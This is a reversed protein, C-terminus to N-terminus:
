GASAVPSRDAAGYEWLAAEDSPEGGVAALLLPRTEGATLVGRAVGADTKERAVTLGWKRITAAEVSQPALGESHQSRGVQRCM